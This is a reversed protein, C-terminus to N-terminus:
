QFVREFWRNLANKKKQWIPSPAIGTEDDLEFDFDGELQCKLGFAEDNDQTVPVLRPVSCDYSMTDKVYNPVEVMTLESYLDLEVPMLDLTSMYKSWVRAAGNAGTLGSSKNDDRGVWVVTLLDGSFGAFWSDRYDDTTGTKGGLNLGQNLRYNISAATGRRVVEQLAFSIMNNYKPEVVQEIDLAYRDLPEQKDTLVSRVAKVPTRFGGSAITLYMKSVDLPSLDLSGLLLSPLKKPEYGLGFTELDSAVKELGVDMGMQVTPVNYSNALVDLLMVNGHFQKDYNKPEWDPSGKQSVVLPEDLVTSNLQYSDPKHRLASLMVFPKILSGIPRRAQLVRNFGSSVPTRAGSMAVVEGNDTRVTIAAVQLTNDAFNREREIAELESAVAKDLKNQIRPDLTTFIRLGAAELDKSQYDNQLQQRVLESFAPYSRSLQDGTNGVTKLTQKKAHEAQTADILGHDEMVALVLNRRARSDNPNRIPNYATPGKVMGALMAYEHLDLEDLPRGFLFQSGLGFGHIARNGAQGLNVENLYAQLIAEKSYHIELLIAMVMEILKRKITRESTLFYNKVLQQTLTSGGQVTRGATINRVMARAIGLPDVGFHRYFKRDEMVLLADILPKPAEELTILSRDEHSLPSVSGFSRPEIRVDDVASSGAVLDVILNDQWRIQVRSAEQTENWFVFERLFVDVAGEQSYYRGVRSVEAPSAQERYGLERLENIVDQQQIRQGVYIDLPRTYVHAPLAWKQGEFKQTIVRDLYLVMILLAVFAIVSLRVFIGLVRSRISPKSKTQRTKAVSKKTVKKKSRKKKAPASASTRSAAKSNKKPPPKAVINLFRNNSLGHAIIIVLESYNLLWIVQSVGSLCVTM